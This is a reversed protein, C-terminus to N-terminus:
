DSYYYLKSKPNEEWVRLVSYRWLNLYHEAEEIEEQYYSISQNVEFLDEKIADYTEKNSAKPLMELLSKEEEQERKLWKKNDSLSKQYFELIEDLKEKTLETLYEHEELNGGWVLNVESTLKRTPTTSMELLTIARGFTGGETILKVTTQSSM